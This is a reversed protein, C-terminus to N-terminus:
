NQFHHSSLISKLCGLRIECSILKRFLAKKISFVHWFKTKTGTMNAGALRGTIEAHNWHEARRRGLKSDEYSAVDGAVYVDDAAQLESNAM